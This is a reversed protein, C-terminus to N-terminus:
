AKWCGEGGTKWREDLRPLNCPFEPKDLKKNVNNHLRCTWLVLASRSSTDPPNLQLYEQFDLACYKCPYLIALSYLFQHIQIVDHISPEDPYSAAITHILSWSNRGLEEKNLPCEIKSIKKKKDDGSKVRTKMALLLMESKSKCAPNECDLVNAHKSAECVTPNAYRSIVSAMLGIPAIYKSM